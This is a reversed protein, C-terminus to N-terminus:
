TYIYYAIHFAVVILIKLLQFYSLKLEAVKEQLANIEKNFNDALEVITMINSVEIKMIKCIDLFEKQDIFTINNINKFYIVKKPKINSINLYQQLYTWSYYFTKKTKSYVWPVREVIFQEQNLSSM